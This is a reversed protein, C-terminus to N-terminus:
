RDERPEYPDVENITWGQTRAAQELQERVARETAWADRRREIEQYEALARSSVDERRSGTRNGKVRGSL